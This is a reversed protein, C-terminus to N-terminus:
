GRLVFVRYETPTTFGMRRYVSAGLPSAQLNCLRAGRRRGERVVAWTVAAGYGRGCAEPVTGVWGIGAVEHSLYVIAGAVAAGDRYAIFATKMPGVLSEVTQFHSATSEADIGYVGWAPVMVGLYDRRGADDTVPRLELESPAPRDEVENSLVMAPVTVLQEFGGHRLENELAGDAHARTWVSCALGAARFTEDLARRIASARGRGVVVLMNTFESGHPSGCLMMGDREVIFGGATTRADERYMEQMSLDMLALVATGDM